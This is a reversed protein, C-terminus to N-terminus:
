AFLNHAIQKCLKENVNQEKDHEKTNNGNDYNNMYDNDYGNANLMIRIARDNYFKDGLRFAEIFSLIEIAEKRNKRWVHECLCRRIARIMGEDNLIKSVTESESFKSLSNLINAVNNINGYEVNGLLVCSVEIVANKIENENDLNLDLGMSKMFSLTAEFRETYNGYYYERKIFAFLGRLMLKQTPRKKLKTINKDNLLSLIDKATTIYGSSLFKFYGKIIIRRINCGNVIKDKCGLEELLSLCERVDQIKGEIILESLYKEFALRTKNASLVENVLSEEGLKNLFNLFIGISSIYKKRACCEIGAITAKKFSGSSIVKKLAKHFGLERLYKIADKATLFSGNRLFKAICVRANKAGNVANQSKIMKQAEIEYGHKQLFSLIYKVNDIHCKKLEQCFFIEITNKVKGNSLISEKEEKSILSLCIELYYFNRPMAISAAKSSSLSHTIYGKIADIADQTALLARTKQYSNCPYDNSYNDEDVAKCILEFLTPKRGESAFSAGLLPSFIPKKALQQRRTQRQLANHRAGRNAILNLNPHKSNHKEPTTTQTPITNIGNTM